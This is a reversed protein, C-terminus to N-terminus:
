SLLLGLLYTCAVWLSATLGFLFVQLIFKMLGSVSKMDDWAAKELLRQDYERM